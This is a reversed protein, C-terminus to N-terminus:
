TESAKSLKGKKIDANYPGRGKESIEAETFKHKKAQDETEKNNGDKSIHAHKWKILLTQM